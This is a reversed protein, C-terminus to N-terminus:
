RVRGTQKADAVAGLVWGTLHMAGVLLALILLVRMWSITGEAKTLRRSLADIAAREHGTM